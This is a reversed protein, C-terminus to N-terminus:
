LNLETKKYSNSNKNNTNKHDNNKQQLKVM